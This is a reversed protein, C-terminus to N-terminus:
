GVQEGSFVVKPANIGKKGFEKWTRRTVESKFQFEQRLDYVYAKARLRQYFPLDDLLIDFPRKTSIFVYKSTVIAEKLIKMALETDSDPDIFLDIVVMMESSGANASAVSQVFILYNPASVLNDDPTILKTARIGIDTVEGYHEGISIKDGVQYPKELTIVIGGVMDTFLDKLGFGIAAGLFGGFVIFETASLKLVSALIYYIALGYTTFKLLPIVMKVTIRYQGARESFWILIFITIRVFVTAAVLVLIVDLLIASSIPQIETM